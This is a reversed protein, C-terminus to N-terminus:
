QPAPPREAKAQNEQKRLHNVVRQAEELWALKESFPLSGLRRSQAEHHADWGAERQFAESLERDSM